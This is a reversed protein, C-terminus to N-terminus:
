SWCQWPPPWRRCPATLLGSSLWCCRRNMMKPYCSFSNYLIPTSTVGAESGPDGGLGAFEAGKDFEGGFSQTDGDQGVRGDAFGVEGNHIDAAWAQLSAGREGPVLGGVVGAPRAKRVSASLSADLIKVAGCGVVAGDEMVTWFTVDPVRLGDLDLTHKSEPPTVARMEQIHEDLFKVIEPGSLDDVLIEM